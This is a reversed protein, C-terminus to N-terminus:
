WSYNYFNRKNRDTADINAKYMQPIQQKICLQKYNSDKPHIKKKVLNYHGKKM